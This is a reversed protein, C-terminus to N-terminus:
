GKLVSLIQNLKQNSVKSLDFTNIKSILAEKEDKIKQQQQEYCDLWTQDSMVPKALPAHISTSQWRDSNIESGNKRYKTDGIIIQTPTVRDVTKISYGYRSSLIVKDSQQIQDLSDKM